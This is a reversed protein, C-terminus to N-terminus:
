RQKTIGKMERLLRVLNGGLIKERDEKSIDWSQVWQIDDKLAILSNKNWPYDFGYIIREVDVFGM